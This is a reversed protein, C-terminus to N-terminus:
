VAKADVQSMGRDAHGIQCRAEHLGIEAVDTEVSVGTPGGIYIFSNLGQGALIDCVHREVGGLRGCVHLDRLDQDQSRVLCAAGHDIATLCVLKKNKQIKAGSYRPLGAALTSPVM